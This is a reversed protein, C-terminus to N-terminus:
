VVVTKESNPPNPNTIVKSGDGYFWKLANRILIKKHNWLATKQGADALVWDNGEECREYFTSHEAFPGYDIKTIKTRQYTSFVPILKAIDAEKLWVPDDAWVYVVVMRDGCIFSAGKDNKRQESFVVRRGWVIRPRCIEWDKAGPCFDALLPGKITPNDEHIQYDRWCSLKTNDTTNSSQAMDFFEGKLDLLLCRMTATWPAHYQPGEASHSSNKKFPLSFMPAALLNESDEDQINRQISRFPPHKAM